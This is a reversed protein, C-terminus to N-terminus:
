MQKYDLHTQHLFSTANQAEEDGVQIEESLYQNWIRPTLDTVASSKLRQEAPLRVRIEWKGPSHAVM